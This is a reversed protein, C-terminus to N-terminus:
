RPPCYRHATLRVQTRGSGDTSVVRVHALASPTRRVDLRVKRGRIPRPAGLLTVRLSRPREGRPARVVVDYVPTAHCVTKGSYTAGCGELDLKLLERTAFTVAPSCGVGAREADITASRVGRATVRLRRATRGSRPTAELRSVAAYPLGGELAGAASIAAEPPAAPREIADSVVDIRGTTSSSAARIDSLWYAHDARLGFEPESTAPNLVYTVRAPDRQVRAAGLFDALPGVDSLAATALATHDVGDFTLASYRYGLKGLRALLAVQASYRCTRDGTTQWSMLPVERLAPLLPLLSRARGGPVSRLGAWEIGAGPCPAIGGARAFLDPYAAALKIAGYGGMSSGIISTQEPDLPHRRAVDAWAEFVDAAARGFYWYCDGRAEPTLVIAGAGREGLQRHRRTGVGISYTQGCGHLDLTLGFGGPPPPGAPV